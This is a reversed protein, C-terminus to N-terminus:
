GFVCKYLFVINDGCLIIILGEVERPAAGSEGASLLDIDDDSGAEGQGEELQGVGYVGDLDSDSMHSHRVGAQSLITHALIAVSTQTNSKNSNNKSSSTNRPTTPQIALGSGGAKLWESM